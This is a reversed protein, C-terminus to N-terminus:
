RHPDPDSGHGDIARPVEVFVATGAGPRSEITLKGGILAAREEMGLLGLRRSQGASGMVAAVDFGQGDDEVIIVTTGNREELLVSVNRAGAHKAVNTLAEQVIRYLAIEEQPPLRKDELAAAHFDLSINYRSAYDRAYRELAAVLGLDDLVSPRLELALDHTLDLTDAALSRLEAAKGKASPDGCTEELHKLGLMLSSLAQGAEDHLERAIRKREEEQASIVEELLRTRDEEKERLQQTMTNFAAALKGVEDQTEITVQQSLEGRGVARAAEALRALPRTFLTALVYAVVLGALLVGGTLALLNFTLQAVQSESPERTIGLRVTGADGGLIPMAVDVMSGESTNLTKVSSLQGTPVENAERLGMPLGSSFTSAKVAGEPDLVVIYRIDTNTALVASIHQYLGYTDNTLLPEPAYSAVDNAVAIARKELEDQSINSLTLRAHLTGGVGLALVLVAIAVVIKYRLSV